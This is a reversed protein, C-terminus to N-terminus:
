SRFQLNISNSTYHGNFESALDVAVTAEKMKDGAFVRLTLNWKQLKCLSLIQSTEHFMRAM